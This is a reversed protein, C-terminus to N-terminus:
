VGLLKRVRAVHGTAKVNYMPHTVRGEEDIVFTSRIVGIVAKGYLQKTGWAGYAELVEHAPDSLLPYTLGDRARFERLVSREDPSLGLLEYGARQLPRRSDRFDCAEKTCGETLAAPYCFLIVRRGRFDALSVNRGSQNKLTFEPAPDGPLLRDTPATTRPDTVTRAYGARRVEGITERQSRHKVGSIAEVYM